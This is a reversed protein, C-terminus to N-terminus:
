AKRVFDQLSGIGDMAFDNCKDLHELANTINEICLELEEAQDANIAIPVKCTNFRDELSDGNSFMVFCNNLHMPTFLECDARDKLNISYTRGYMYKRNIKTEAEEGITLTAIENLQRFEVNLEGSICMDKFKSLIQEKLQKINDEIIVCVHDIHEIVYEAM